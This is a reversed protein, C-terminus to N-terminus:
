HLTKKDTIFDLNPFLNKLVFHEMKDYDWDLEDFCKEAKEEDNDFYKYILDILREEREEEFRDKVYETDVSVIENNLTIYDHQSQFNFTDEYHYDAIISSLHFDKLYNNIFNGVYEIQEENWQENSILEFFHISTDYGLLEDVNYTIAMPASEPYYKAREDEYFRTIEYGLKKAQDISLNNVEFIYGYKKINGM